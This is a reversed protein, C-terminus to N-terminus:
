REQQSAPTLNYRESLQNYRGELEKELADQKFYKAFSILQEM